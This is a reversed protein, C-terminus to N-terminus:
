RDATVLPVAAAVQVRVALDLRNELQSFRLVKSAPLVKGLKKLHKDRVDLSKKELDRSKKLMAKANEEPVGPYLNAYELVLALLDNGVKDMEARYDQYLPWFATSEQETLKMNEAILVKRDAKLISRVVEIRDVNNQPPASLATGALLTAGLVLNAIM